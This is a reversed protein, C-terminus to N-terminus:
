EEDDIQNHYMIRREALLLGGPDPEKSWSCISLDVVEGPRLNCTLRTSTRCEDLDAPPPRECLLELLVTVPFFRLNNGGKHSVLHFM